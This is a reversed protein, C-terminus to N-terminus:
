LVRPAKKMDADRIKVLEPDITPEPRPQVVVKELRAIEEDRIRALEPDLYIGSEEAQAAKATENVAKAPKKGAM